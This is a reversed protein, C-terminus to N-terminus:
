IPTYRVPLSHDHSFKPMTGSIKTNPLAMVLPSFGSEPIQARSSSILGSFNGGPEVWEVKADFGNPVETAKSTM